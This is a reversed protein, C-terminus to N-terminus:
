PRPGKNQERNGTKDVFVILGTQRVGESNNGSYIRCSIILKLFQNKLKTKPIM